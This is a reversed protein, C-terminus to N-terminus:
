NMGGISSGIFIFVNKGKKNEVVWSIGQEYIATLLTGKIDPSVKAITDALVLNSSHSIDIPIYEFEYGEKVAKEILFKVKSGDGAGLEM